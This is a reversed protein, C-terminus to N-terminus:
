DAGPISPATPATESALSEAQAKLDDQLKHFKEFTQAWKQKFKPVAPNILGRGVLWAIGRQIPSTNQAIFQSENDLISQFSERRNEIENLADLTQRSLSADLQPMIQRIDQMATELLHLSLSLDILVCGRFAEGSLRMMKLYGKVAKETEEQQQHLMSQVRIALGIHFFQKAQQVVANHQDMPRLYPMRADQSLGKDVMEFVPQWAELKSTVSERGHIEIQSEPNNFLDTPVTPMLHSAEVFTDYGNPSPLAMDETQTFWASFALAALLILVFSLGIIILSRTKM